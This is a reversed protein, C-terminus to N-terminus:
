GGAETKRHYIWYGHPNDAGTPRWEGVEGTIVPQDPLGPFAFAVREVGTDCMHYGFLLPAEKTCSGPMWVPWWSYPLSARNVTVKKVMGAPEAPQKSWQNTRCVYNPGLVDKEQRVTGSLVVLATSYARGDMAEVTVAFGAIESVTIGPNGGTAASFRWYGKGNGKADISVPGMSIKYGDALIMWGAYYYPLGNPATGLYRLNEVGLLAEGYKEGVVIHVSGKASRRLSSSVDERTEQLVVRMRNKGSKGM